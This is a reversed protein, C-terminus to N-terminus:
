LQFSPSAAHRQTGARCAEKLSIPSYSRCSAMTEDTERQSASDGHLFLDLAQEIVSATPIGAVFSPRHECERQSRDIGCVPCRVQWAILPRHRLRTFPGANIMNFCLFIGVTSSGVAQALHLPGSDNSVLVRCRSLLGALGGLTLRNCLNQASCQMNDIVAELLEREDGTGIVVVYAGAKALADGVEAFKEPPWRRQPDGAGPHLAAIPKAIEPVVKQAEIIDEERLSFRPELAVPATGVLSVVELLRAIESQFYIYPIWRDLPVADPTKLGATVRAELRLVFPNSNRGGGHLQLALDFAEQRMSEFFLELEAPDEEVGAIENVGKTPPIVIVRDIPGRRQTLFDRHWQKGLLVIEAQPYTVRLAELAPLTFIYDGLGNARLVAIKRVEPVREHPFQMRGSEKEEM